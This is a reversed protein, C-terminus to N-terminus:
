RDRLKARHRSALAYIIGITQASIGGFLLYNLNFNNSAQVLQPTAIAPVLSLPLSDHRIKNAYAASLYAHYAPQEAVYTQAFATSLAMVYHQAIARNPEVQPVPSTVKVSLQDTVTSYHTGGTLLVFYKNSTTLWSFPKIQERLAPALTDATGAITMLPIKIERLSAQGLMSSGIPNIAIVAKVREDALEYNARPLDLAACQLLLSPNVSLQLTFCDTELQEFRLKAGALVLATYAGFSQGIIGVQQLNLRGRFESDTQSLRELEDLLYTVDLPRDIFERPAIVQNIRGEFLARMRAGNSGPHEPVVVVFGYSALHKALYTFSARSSGLGHSIVIAPHPKRTLPLYIDAQFRRDRARDNLNITRRKWKFRGQQGLDAVPLWNPLPTTTAELIAQQEIQAIAQNTQNVATQWVGIMELSRALDINIQSSPFQRLVNLLTLGEPDGAALVLASRIAENNSHAIPYALLHVLQEGMQTDLFRSMKQPKLFVRTQLMQRLQRLQHPTAYRYPQRWVEHGCLAFCNNLEGTKVFNELSHISISQEISGYSLSIREAGMVPAAFTPILGVSFFALALKWALSLKSIFNVVKM